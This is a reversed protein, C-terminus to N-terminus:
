KDQNELEVIQDYTYEAIFDAIAQGKIVGRPHYEIDFERIEILWKVLRGSTEPRNLIAKLSQDTLVRITHVQFYPRLWRATVVLALAM